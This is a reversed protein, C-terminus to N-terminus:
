ADDANFYSRYSSDKLRENTGGNACPRSEYHLSLLTPRAILSRSSDAEPSASSMFLRGLDAHSEPLALSTFSSCLTERHELNSDRLGFNAVPACIAESHKRPEEDLRTRSRRLPIEHVSGRQTEAKPKSGKRLYWIYLTDSAPPV